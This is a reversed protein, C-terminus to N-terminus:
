RDVGEKLLRQVFRVDACRASESPVCGSDSDSGKPRFGIRRASGGELICELFSERHAQVEASFFAFKMLHFLSKNKEKVRSTVCALAMDLLLMLAISWAVGDVQWGNSGLCPVDKRWRQHDM